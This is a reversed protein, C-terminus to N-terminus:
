LDNKDVLQNIYPAVEHLFTQLDDESKTTNCAEPLGIVSKIRSIIPATTEFVHFEPYCILRVSFSYENWNDTIEKPGYHIMRNIPPRYPGIERKLIFAQNNNNEKPNLSASDMFGFSVYANEQPIEVEIQKESLGFWINDSGFDQTVRIDGTRVEDKLAEFKIKTNKLKKKLDHCNTYEKPYTDEKNSSFFSSKKNSEQYLKIAKKLQKDYEYHKKEAWKLRREDKLQEIELQTIKSSKENNVEEEGEEEEGEEVEDENLKKLYKNINIKNIYKEKEEKEKIPDYPPLGLTKYVWSKLTQKSNNYNQALEIYEKELLDLEKHKNSLETKFLQFENTYNKSLLSRKEIASYYQNTLFSKEFDSLHLPCTNFCYTLNIFEDSGDCCDCSGDNIQNMTVFKDSRLCQFQTKDPNLRNKYTKTFFSPNFHFNDNFVVFLIFLLM